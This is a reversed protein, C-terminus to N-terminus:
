PEGEVKSYRTIINFAVAIEALNAKFPLDNIAKAVREHIVKVHEGKVMYDKWKSM